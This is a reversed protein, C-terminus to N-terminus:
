LIFPDDYSLNLDIVENDRDEDKNDGTTMFMDYSRRCRFDEGFENDELDDRTAGVAKKRKYKYLKNKLLPFNEMIHGLKKCRYCKM